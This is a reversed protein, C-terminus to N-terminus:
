VQCQAYAFKSPITMASLQVREWLPNLKGRYFEMEKKRKGPNKLCCGYCGVGFFNMEGDGLNVEKTEGKGSGGRWNEAEGRGM